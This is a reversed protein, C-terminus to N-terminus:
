VKSPKSTKRSELLSKIRDWLSKKETTKELIMHTLLLNEEVLKLIRYIDDKEEEFDIEQYSNVVDLNLKYKNCGSDKDGQFTKKAFGLRIIDQIADCVDNIDIGYYKSLYSTSFSFERFNNKSSYYMMSDLIKKITPSLNSKKINVPLNVYLEKKEQKNTETEKM